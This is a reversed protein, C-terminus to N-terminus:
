QLAQKPDQTDECSMRHFLFSCKPRSTVGPPDGAEELHFVARGYGRHVDAAELTLMERQRVPLLGSFLQRPPPLFLSPQVSGDPFPAM